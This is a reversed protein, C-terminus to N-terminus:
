SIVIIIYISVSEFNFPDRSLGADSIVFVGHVEGRFILSVM